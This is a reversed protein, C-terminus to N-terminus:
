NSRDREHSRMPHSLKAEMYVTLKNFAYAIIYSKEITLDSRQSHGDDMSM